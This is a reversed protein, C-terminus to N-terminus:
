SSTTISTLQTVRAFWSNDKLEGGNFVRMGGILNKNVQFIPFLHPNHKEFHSRIEKKLEIDITRPSQIILLKEGAADRSLNAIGSSIEQYSYQVLLRRLSASINSDSKILKNALETQYELDYNTSEAMMDLRIGLGRTLLEITALILKNGKIDVQEPQNIFSVLTQIDKLFAKEKVESLYKKLPEPIKTSKEVVTKNELADPHKKLFYTLEYVINTFFDQFM